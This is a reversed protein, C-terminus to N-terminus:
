FLTLPPEVPEPEDLPHQFHDSRSEHRPAVFHRCFWDAADMTGDLFAGTANRLTKLLRDM